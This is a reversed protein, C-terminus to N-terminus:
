DSKISQPDSESGPMGHGTPAKPASLGPRVPDAIYELLQDLHKSVLVAAVESAAPDVGDKGPPGRVQDLHKSVLVAAVEDLPILKASARILNDDGIQKLINAAMAEPDVEKSIKTIKAELEGANKVADHVLNNADILPKQMQELAATLAATEANAKALDNIMYGAIGAVLVAATGGIGFLKLMYGRVAEEAEVTLRPRTESKTVGLPLPKEAPQSDEERPGVDDKKTLEKDDKKTLEKDNKKTLEKDNTNGDASM